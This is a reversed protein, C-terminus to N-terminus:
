GEGASETIPFEMDAVKQADIDLRLLLEDQDIDKILPSNKVAWEMDAYGDTLMTSINAVTESDNTIGRRKFQPEVNYIGILELINIIFDSVGWELKDAALDLDAMAAKIAVNTLSGGKITDMDLGMFDSYLQKRLLELATKKAEYPIEVVHSELGSNDGDTATAKLQQLENLLQAADDGGYNKITWYLGEIMTIGDALDSNIFDYADILGKIGVTLCSRGSTNAKLSFVPIMPYNDTDTIEEGLIDVRRKTIYPKKDELLTMSSNKYGVFKTIGDIEFLEVYLPKDPAIQWFRIGADLDGTQENYLPVFETARFIILRDVNWFGYVTGDIVAETSAEQIIRDFRMGLKSKVNDDLTVGNGVLYQVRQDVLRQFFGSCIKHFKVKSDRLGHKQLYTLRNLIAINDGNYYSQADKAEKYARSNKYDSIAATIAAETSKSKYFDQSTMM